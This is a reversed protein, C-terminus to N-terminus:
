PERRWVGERQDMWLVVVVHPLTLTAILVLYLGVFEPVTTPPDPVIRHLGGLLVLAGGTLPLAQLAFRRWATGERGARLAARAKPDMILLRAIHRAAHWVCFYLGVALVPHVLAFFGFLLATEGMDIWWGRRAGPDGHVYGRLGLVAILGVFAGGAGMRFTTGFVWGLQDLAGPDIRATVLHAVERYVDPFFVLPVLMPLGGRVILTGVRQWRDDLHQADFLALLNYLDGQGWHFWTLTIFFVFAAGPALYWGGLYLAAIALYAVIVAALPGLRLPKEWLRLLVLHDVAGHPLGLVVLSVLFPAYLLWTPWSDAVLGLPVLLLVAVWSPWCVTRVLRRRTTEEIPATDSSPSLTPTRM